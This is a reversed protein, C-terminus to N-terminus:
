FDQSRWQLLSKVIETWKGVEELEPSLFGPSEFLHLIYTTKKFNSNEPITAEAKIIM